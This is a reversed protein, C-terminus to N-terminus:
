LASKMQSCFSCFEFNSLSYMVFFYFCPCSSYSFMFVTLNMVLQIKEKFLIFGKKFIDVTQSVRLHTPLSSWLRPAVSSFARGGMTLLKTGQSSHLKQGRLSKLYPSKNNINQEYKSQKSIM